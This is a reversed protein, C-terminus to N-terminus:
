PQFEASEGGSGAPAPAAAPAPPQRPAAAPPPKNSTAAPSPRFEDGAPPAPPPSPAQAPGPRAPAPAPAPPEPDSRAVPERPATPPATVADPVPDPNPEHERDQVQAVPREVGMVPRLPDVGEVACYSGAGAAICGAVVTAVAGPRAGAVPTVDIARVYAGGANEKARALLEGVQHKAGVVVEVARGGDAGAGAPPAAALPLPLVVAARGGLERLEAMMARCCPDEDVLRRARERQRESAVGLLCACLLSRKRSAWDGSDFAAFQALLAKGAREVIRRYGRETLRLRARIAAPELDLDLRLKLVAREAEGLEDILLRVRRAEDSSLAAEEPTEAVDAVEAFASDTPDFTVRRRADAGYTRKSALKDTACVLYGELNEIEVGAARRRLVSAWAEHYLEYRSDPDLGRYRSCLMGMVAPEHVRYAREDSDWGSPFKVRTLSATRYGRCRGAGSTVSAQRALALSVGVPDRHRM